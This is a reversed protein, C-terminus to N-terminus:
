NVATRHLQALMEAIRRSPDDRERLEHPIDARRTSVGERLYPAPSPRGADVSDWIAGREARIERLGAQRMSGFRFVTAGMIGALALAGAMVILLMQISSAQSESSADAAALPVVAVVPPPAAASNAQLNTGSNGATPAPNASSSVGTQEPWRSAVVSRQWDADPVNARQNTEMSAADAPMAPIPADDRDPQDIRTPAPLEARADAISRQMAAEPKPASPKVAPSSNPQATQALKEREDGLYWCHRKTAHDIRYYWHGGAPVAGKPGSLCSDATKAGNEAVAAFNAGALISAFIASVFKASRNSMHMGRSSVRRKVDWIENFVQTAIRRLEPLM